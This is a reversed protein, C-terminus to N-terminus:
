RAGERLEPAVPEAQETPEAPEGSGVPATPAVGLIEAFRARAGAEDGRRLRELVDSDVLRYWLEKRVAFEPHLRALPARVRGAMELFRANEEGLERELKERIRVALAPARGATSVAVTLDGRRLISPAIFSCRPVDDVTNLPVNRRNAELWATERVAPDACTVIALVAGALDGLRYGRAEWRVEGRAAREAVEATVEPAVVTVRAGAQSLGRVKEETFALAAGGGGVVTCPRGALDLFIPYYSTM